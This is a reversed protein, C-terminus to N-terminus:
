HEDKENYFSGQPIFVTPLPEVGNLYKEYETIARAGSGAKIKAAKLKIGQRPITRERRVEFFHTLYDMRAIKKRQSIMEDEFDWPRTKVRRIVENLEKGYVSLGGHKSEELIKIIEHRLANQEDIDDNFLHACRVILHWLMPVLAVELHIGPFMKAM